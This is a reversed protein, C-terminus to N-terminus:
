SSWMLGLVGVIAIISAIITAGEPKKRYGIVEFLIVWLSVTALISVTILINGNQIAYISFVWGIAMLLARRLLIVVDNNTLKGPPFIVLYVLGAILQRVIFTESLNVGANGLQIINITVAGSTLGSSLTLFLTTSSRLGPISKRMPYLSGAIVVLVLFLQLLSTKTGLFISGLIIVVVPTLTQPVSAISASSRAIIGFILFATLGSLAASILHLKLVESEFVIWDRQYIALPLAFLANLLFLPGISKLFSIQTTIGKTFYTGLGFSIAALLAMAEIM